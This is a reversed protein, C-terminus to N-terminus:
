DDDMDEDGDYDDDDFSDMDGEEGEEEEEEEGGEDDGDLRDSVRLQPRVCQMNAFIGKTFCYRYFYKRSQRDDGNSVILERLNALESVVTWIPEDYPKIDGDNLGYDFSFYQTSLCCLLRLERLETFVSLSDLGDPTVDGFYLCLTHLTAVLTPAQHYIAEIDDDDFVCYHIMYERCPTEPLAPMPGRVYGSESIEARVEDTM